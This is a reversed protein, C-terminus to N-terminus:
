RVHAPCRRWGTKQMTQWAEIANHRLMRGRREVARFGEGKVEDSRQRPDNAAAMAEDSPLWGLVPTINYESDGLGGDLPKLGKGNPRRYQM